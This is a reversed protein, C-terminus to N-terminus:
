ASGSAPSAPGTPLALRLQRRVLASLALTVGIALIAALGLGLWPGLDTLPGSVGSAIATGRLFTFTGNLAAAIAMGLPMWWLPRDEFKHRGLFYGIVGGFSAQALSTMVIRIAGSGLDSGGSQVIFAVNLATALGVGAASGYVIGDVREDFEASGYVSFRVAAYVAFSEIAGVVLISGLLNLVPSRPLWASVDLVDSLLPIVVAAGVLAGLVAVGIVMSRPEPERRDRRYFFSLWVAAPVIALVLGVLTLALGDLAPHVAGDLAWVVIVFIALAAISLLDVQWHADARRTAREYHRDCYAEDGLHHSAPEDCVRCRDAV